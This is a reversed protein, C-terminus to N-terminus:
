PRLGVQRGSRDVRVDVLGWSLWLRHKGSRKDTTSGERRESGARRRGGGV